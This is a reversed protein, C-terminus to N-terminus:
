SRRAGLSTEVEREYHALEEAIREGSWGLEGGMLKAILPAQSRGQDSERHLIHTRRMMFDSLRLAMERRCALLVEARLLPPDEAIREALSADQAVLNGVYTLEGPHRSEISEAADQPLGEGARGNERPGLHSRLAIRGTRCPELPVWSSQAALLECVRDVAEEAMKRCTTLKGGAVTMLGNDELLIQHERSTQSETTRDDLLLPRVGAYSGVVDRHTVGAEPFYRQFAELLYDTEEPSTRLAELDGEFDTDTTGFLIRGHWPIAFVVRRDGPSFMLVAQELPVLGERLIIHVGKTIRMIGPSGSRAKQRVADTWPGTANVVVRARVELSEGTLLDEATVGAVRGGTSLFGTVRVYSAVDAGWAAASRASELTLRADDTRADFYLGAWRLGQHSLAPSASLAEKPSLSRHRGVNRFLALGDYLWLGLDVMLPGPSMGEYVPFLFPLPQVLHPAIDMLVRRELCAEHVLGFDYQELYRLGGHVLKSSRSSTGSGFDGQELLATSIGRM